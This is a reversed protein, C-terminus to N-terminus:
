MLMHRFVKVFSLNHFFCNFYQIILIYILYIYSLVPSESLPSFITLILRIITFSLLVRPLFPAAKKNHSTSFYCYYIRLFQQHCSQTYLDFITPFYRHIYHFHPIIIFILFVAILPLVCANLLHM